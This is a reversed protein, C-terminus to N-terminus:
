QVPCQPRWTMRVDDGFRTVDDLRLRWAADITPAGANDLVPRGSGIACPAVYGVVRDVLRADVLSGALKPGGEVLLHVARREHLHALLARVDTHGDAAAPLVVVDAKADRLAEIREIPAAGTTAVLTPAVGDLIRATLPTRATADVVIRLRQRPALADGDRVTLHPDDALVTSIGVAIADVQSRLVHVDARSEPGTIWRSSGDAASTRGDLSAAYKWTVFPRGLRLAGLWAENGRAAEDGLVGGEVDVGAARLRDAGGAQGPNPDAVAYVVRTVGAALLADVCPGTRGYGSCPELTVVATAGRAAEGAAKLAVLEAHDVDAWVHCGEALVAGGPALLVCGVVPNPSTRGLASSALALARRMAAVETDNAVAVEEPRFAEPLHPRAGSRARASGRM